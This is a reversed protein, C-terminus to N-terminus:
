CVIDWSFSCWQKLLFMQWVGLELRFIASAQPQFFSENCEGESFKSEMYATEGQEEGNWDLQKCGWGWSCLSCSPAQLPLFQVQKSLDAGAYTQAIFPCSHWLLQYPWEGTGDIPMTMRLRKAGCVRYNFYARIILVHLYVDMCVGNRQGWVDMMNFGIAGESCQLKSTGKM